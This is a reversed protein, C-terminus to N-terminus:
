VPQLGLFKRDAKSTKKIIRIVFNMGEEIDFAELYSRFDDAFPKSFTSYYKGDVTKLGVFDTSDGSVPHPVNEEIIYDSVQLDQNVADKLM